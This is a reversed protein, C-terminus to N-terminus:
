HYDKLILTVIKWNIAVFRIIQATLSKPARLTQDTPLPATAIGRSTHDVKQKRSRRSPHNHRLHERPRREATHPNSQSSVAIALRGFTRQQRAEM